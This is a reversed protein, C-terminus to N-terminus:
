LIQGAAQLINSDLIFYDDGNLEGNYDFDGVTYGFVTGSQLIHADLYFYDDGNLEGNLDADGGFTYKFLITTADVTEGSFTATDFGSLGLVGSADAVAIGTLVGSTADTMSTLIGNTGNWTGDGRGSQVMGIAGSYSSGGWSGLPTAGDYDWILDNDALDIKGNVLLTKTVIVKSGGPTVALDGAVILQRIDQSADFVASAGVGVFVTLDPAAVGFDSGLTFTGGIVVLEDNVGGGGNYTVPQTITGDIGLINDSTNGNVEISTFSALALSLVDDDNDVDLNSGNVTLLWNPNSPGSEIHLVNSGDVWAFDIQPVLTAFQGAPASNGAVDKVEDAVLTVNYEGMDAFTWEGGPAPVRYTVDNGLVSIFQGNQSYGNPGTILIDSDDLTTTDLTGYFDTYTVVLDYIASGPAPDSPITNMTAFPGSPDIVVELGATTFLNGAADTVQVKITYPHDSLTETFSYSGDGDSDTSIPSDDVLLAVISGTEVTGNFTLTTLNTINDTSSVGSDSAAALDPVSATAATDITVNLSASDGSQPLGIETQRATILRVGDTLTTTGNTLVTTSLGAATASGIAIGDAYITVTAGPVTGGVTFSLKSGNNANNLFTKNDSTSSGTDHSADLDPAGPVASSGALPTANAEASNGSLNAATDIARAVYYYTTGTVVTNDTYNSVTVTSGNLQTYPGGATTSRYVNYGWLDGEGNNPWDLTVSTTTTSVISTGPAGPAANDITLSLAASPSSEAQSPNQQTATISRLGDPITTVGDTTVVTTTGTAVISGIVTAGDYIRVTAGVITGMVQFQMVKAPASNNFNTRDDTSFQGSDQANALNPTGPAPAITTENINFYNLVGSMVQNRKTSSKITEFPFGMTVVRTSGSSYQVAATGGSSYTLAATSGNSAAIVDPTDVDYTFFSGTPLADAGNDFDVLTLGNFISGAVGATSYSAADDSVYDAHLKTNYFTPDVGGADLNFGIEAGSVFIKGGANLYNTILTRETADFTVDTSSEEGSIWLVTHYDALNIVGSIVQDNQASEVGLQTNYAEVAEAFQAVYDRTNQYRYRVRDVSGSAHTQTDDGFRDLRDFGNVILIPARRGQQPKAVVVDRQVSEGGANTAVVKFYTMQNPLSGSTFTHSTVNGLTVAESWSYGNYGYYIKYGTAAGAGGAATGTAPAVWNLTIDGGANTIARSASPPEPLLTASTGAWTQFYKAAAHYSARAVWDRVKPNRMNQSDQLNDHFAVELITAAMESNASNSNFADLNNENIEGYNSSGYVNNRSAWTHEIMGAPLAQMDEEVENGVENAWWNQNITQNAVTNNLLGETGRATADPLGTSGNSHFSLHLREVNTGQTEDNMYSIWRPPGNIGGSNDTSAGGDVTTTTVQTGAATWGRSAYMWYLSLEEERPKGSVAHAGGDTWDGMGNGFRIADAIVVTGNSAKNSVEVNGGSGADFYYSGLYVWGKGVYRQNVKVEQSGGGSNIRYLAETSRNSGNAYWAYVPYFGAQAISPTFRAVATETASVNAFRYRNSTDTGSVNSWYTSSASNTSWSGSVISFGADNNDVILENLQHGIPRTPVVTAGARLMYDSYYTIQDQTQFDEVIDQYEPRQTNWSSTGWTWGHGANVFAIKGNLAGSPAPAAAAEAATFSQPGMLASSDTSAPAKFKGTPRPQSQPFVDVKSADPISNVNLHNGSADYLHHTPEGAEEVGITCLMRRLELAEVACRVANHLSDSKGSVPCRAM